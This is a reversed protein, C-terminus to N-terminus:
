KKTCCSCCGNKLVPYQQRAFSLFVEDLTTETASYDEIEDVYNTKLDELFEFLNKWPLDPKYVQYQILNEHRDKLNCPRFKSDIEEMLSLLKPSDQPVVPKLKFTLTFGQGFKSKIHQVGGFCQFQGNVMIALRSCLAEIEDMSHSTLIIAQGLDSNSRIVGWFQRRAVPDVGSTPEDLMVLPPDGILAMATSLRRKMGGSYNKCRVNASELLGVKSLWKTTEESTNLSGRLRSFLQLMEKGSLVGLIADFQPCYGIRSLCYKSRKRMNYKEMFVNGHSPGTDGTLIRFTTTKGAGNVGLLGFCEGYQAGFTLDNVAPFSGFMKTVSSVAVADSVSGTSLQSEIRKAEEIVDEDREDTMTAPRPYHCLAFLPKFFGSDILLVILIYFMGALFVYFLEQCIGPSEVWKGNFKDLEWEWWQLYPRLQFCRGTHEWQLQDLPTGSPCPCCIRAPSDSGCQLKPFETHLMECRNNVLTTHFFKQLCRLIGFFPCIQCVIRNLIQCIIQDVNGEIFRFATAAVLGFLINFCAIFSFGNLVTKVLLSVAYAFCITSFAYVMLIALLVGLAGNATFFNYMQFIPFCCLGVCIIVLLVLFDWLLSAGWFILVNVETMLQLHKAKSIREEAPFIVLFAAVIVLGIGILNVYIMSTAAHFGPQAFAIATKFERYRSRLPHSRVEVSFDRSGTLLHLLANSILNVSLPLAHHPFVSYYAAMGEGFRPTTHNFDAGVIYSSIYNEDTHVKSLLYDGFDSYNTMDERNIKLASKGVVAAYSPGINPTSSNNERYPTIPDSYSALKFAFVPQDFENRSTQISRMFNSSLTVLVTVLLFIMLQILVIILKRRSYHVRKMLIAYFRLGMLSLSARKTPELGQMERNRNSHVQDNEQNRAAQQFGIKSANTSAEKSNFKSRSSNKSEVNDKSIIATSNSEVVLRSRTERASPVESVQSEMNEDIIVKMFIDDMTPTSLGVTKIGLKGKNSELDSFIAPFVSSNELSPLEVALELLNPMGKFSADNVHLRVTDLIQDAHTKDRLTMRITYGPGYKKKLFPSTGCCKLKGEAMIAIRDGLVDAEEMLHTTLLITREARASMLLDWMARRSEPDLGSTPEDLIVVKSGGILAMSLNLKRKQGGSLSKSMVNVKKMMDLQNLIENMESNAEASKAGKLKAFFLLHEKVTLRDFLMNHAPQLYYVTIQGKFIKLSLNDVAKIGKRFEKSLDVVEVGPEIETPDSQFYEGAQEEQSGSEELLQSLRHSDVIKPRRACTTFIYHWPQRVGYTFSMINEVYLALLLYLFISIAMVILTPGLTEFEHMNTLCLSLGVNPIIGLFPVLYTNLSNYYGRIIMDLVFTLTWVLFGLTTALAPQEFFSAIFICMAVSEMCYVFILIWGRFIGGDTFIKSSNLLYAVVTVTITLFAISDIIWGLLHMWNPLGMIRMLEKIGSERESVIERVVSPVIFIFSWVLTSWVRDMVDNSSKPKDYSISPMTEIYLTSNIGTSTIEKILAHDLLLQLGIFGISMYSDHGSPGHTPFLDATKAEDRVFRLTYSYVGEPPVNSVSNFTKTFIVAASIDNSPVRRYEREKLFQHKVTREIASESPFGKWDIVVTGLNFANISDVLNKIMKDTFANSPAYAVRTNNLEIAVRAMEMIGHRPGPPPEPQGSQQREGTSTAKNATTFGVVLIVPLFVQFSTIIWHRKRLIMNKWILLLLRRFKLSVPNKEM